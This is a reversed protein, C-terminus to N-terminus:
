VIHGHLAFLIFLQVHVGHVLQDKQLFLEDQQLILVDRRLDKWKEGHQLGLAGNLIHPICNFLTHITLQNPVHTFTNYAYKLDPYPRNCKYILWDTVKNIERICVVFTVRKAKATIQKSHGFM